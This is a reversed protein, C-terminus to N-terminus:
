TQQGGSFDLLGVVEDGDVALLIFAREAKFANELFQRQDEPTPVPRRTVTDPAEACLMGMFTAMRHEDGQRAARVEVKDM